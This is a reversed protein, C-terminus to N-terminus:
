PWDDLAWRGKEQRVVAWGLGALQELFPEEVNGKEDLRMAPNGKDNSLIM